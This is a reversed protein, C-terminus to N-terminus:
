LCPAAHSSGAPVTCSIRSCACTMGCTRIETYVKQYNRTPIYVRIEFPNSPKDLAQVCDTVFLSEVGPASGIPKGCVLRHWGHRRLPLHVQHSIMTQSRQTSSSRHDPKGYAASWGVSPARARELRARRFFTPSSYHTAPGVVRTPVNRRLRSAQGQRPTPGYKAFEEQTDAEPGGSCFTVQGDAPMGFPRSRSSRRASPLCLLLLRLRHVHGQPLVLRGRATSATV